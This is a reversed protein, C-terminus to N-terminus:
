NYRLAKIVVSGLERAQSFVAVTINTLGVFSDTGPICLTAHSVFASDHWCMTRGSQPEFGADLAAV